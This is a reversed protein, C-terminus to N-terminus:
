AAGGRIVRLKPRRPTAARRGRAQDLMALTAELAALQQEALRLLEDETM